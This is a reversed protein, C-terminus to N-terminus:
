FEEIYRIEDETLNFFNYIKQDNWDQTFDNIPIFNLIQSLIYQTWKNSNMVFKVLKSEYYNKAYEGKEDDKLFLISVQEKAGLEGCDDVVVQYAGVYPLLVKRKELDPDPRNGWRIPKYCHSDLVPYIHESDKDPVVSTKTVSQTWRMKFQRKNETNHLIKQHISLSTASLDQPFFTMDSIDLDILKEKTQMKTSTYNKDKKMVFSTPETGVNGFYKKVDFNVYILNNKKFYDNLISKRSGMLDYTPATWSDPITFALYGDAEVHEYAKITYHVWPEGNGTTKKDHDRKGKFPPNGLIVTYKQNIDTDLFDAVTYTGVLKHKNKAFSIRMRNSEYGYVRKSINELSHGYEALKKEVASVFQGGGIAPDLFTSSDSEWVNKPIQNLKIEVLDELEFKLRGLMTAERIGISYILM